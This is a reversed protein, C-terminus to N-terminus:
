KCCGSKAAPAAETRSDTARTGSGRRAACICIGMASACRSGTPMLPSTQAIIRMPTIEPSPMWRCEHLLMKTCSTSIGRRRRGSGTRSCTRSSRAPMTPTATKANQKPASKLCVSYTSMHNWTVVAIKMPPAPEAMM